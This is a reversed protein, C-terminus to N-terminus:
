DAENEEFAYICHCVTRYQEIASNAGENSASSFLCLFFFFWLPIKCTNQKYRLHDTVHTFLKPTIIRNLSQRIEVVKSSRAMLSLSLSVVDRMHEKDQLEASRQTTDPIADRPLGAAAV